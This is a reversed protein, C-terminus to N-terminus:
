RGFIYNKPPQIIVDKVINLNRENNPRNNKILKKM